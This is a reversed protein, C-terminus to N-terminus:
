KGLLMGYLIPGPVFALACLLAETFSISLSKDDEAVCRFSLLEVKAM